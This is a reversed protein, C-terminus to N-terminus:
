WTQPDFPNVIRAGTNKVDAINRTALILNNMKATAALLGDIASLPRPANMRGWADAVAQDIPFIRGIFQERVAALWHELAVAKRPDRQRVLEIGKRIEGLVLVSLHIEDNDISAYWRAM